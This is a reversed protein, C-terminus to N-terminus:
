DADSFRGAVVRRRQCKAHYSRTYLEGSAASAKVAPVRTFCTRASGGKEDARGSGKAESKFRQCPLFRDPFLDFIRLSIRKEM